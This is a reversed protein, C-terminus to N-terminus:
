LPLDQSRSFCGCVVEPPQKICRYRIKLCKLNQLPSHVIATMNLRQKCFKFGSGLLSLMQALPEALASVAM